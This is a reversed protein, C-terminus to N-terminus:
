AAAGGRMLWLGLAVALISLLVSASVYLLFAGQQGREWLLVSELSFASFTTFGGLVGVICFSRLEQSWGGTHALYGSLVGIALGGGVNIGLTGWPFDNGALRFAAWSAGHRLVAGIAGGLAILLLTKM